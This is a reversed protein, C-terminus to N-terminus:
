FSLLDVMLSLCSDNKTAIRFGQRKVCMYISARLGLLPVAAHWRGVIQMVIREQHEAAFWGRKAKRDDREKEPVGHYNGEGQCAMPRAQRSRSSSERASAEHEADTCILFLFVYRVCAFFINQSSATRCQRTNVQREREWEKKKMRNDEISREFKHRLKENEEKMHVLKNRLQQERADRSHLEVQTLLPLWVLQAKM